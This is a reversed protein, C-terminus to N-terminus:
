LTGGEQLMKEYMKIEDRIEAAKEFEERSVLQQLTEKLIQIKKRIHSVGGTRQPIKGNHKWNGGQVRRFIPNLQNEFTEYCQACGFKGIQLFQSFTMGCSSCQLMEATQFGPSHDEQQIGPKFNFLGALLNNISLGSPNHFMLLDGKEQACQECLHIETIEGNIIKTFHLTAPRLQCEQCIM